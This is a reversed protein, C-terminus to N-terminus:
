VSMKKGTQSRSSSAFIASLLCCAKSCEKGAGQFRGSIQLSPATDVRRIEAEGEGEGGPERQWMRLQPSRTAWPKGKGHTRWEVSPSRADTTKRLMLRMCCGFGTRTGKDEPVV